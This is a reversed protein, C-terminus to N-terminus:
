YLRYKRSEELDQYIWGIRKETSRSPPKAYM